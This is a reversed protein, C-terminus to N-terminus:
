GTFGTEEMWNMDLLIELDQTSNNAIRVLYNKNKELIWMDGNFLSLNRIINNNGQMSPVWLFSINEGIATITPNEWWIMNPTSKFNRNKDVPEILETGDNSTTTGEYFDIDINGGDSTLALSLIHPYNGAGIKLMIDETTLRPIVVRHQMNFSRGAHIAILTDTQNTVSLPNLSPATSGIGITDQLYLILLDFTAFPTTGDSSWKNFTRPYVIQEGTQSNIIGITIVDEDVVGANELINNFIIKHDSLPYEVGDIIFLTTPANTSATIKTLAM